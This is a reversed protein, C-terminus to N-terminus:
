APAAALATAPARRRVFRREVLHYSLVAAALSLGIGIGKVYLAATGVGLWVFIPVHWLYLSYSTKGLYVVPRWAGRELAALLVTAACVAFVVVWGNYLGTPTWFLISVGVVLAPWAFAGPRWGARAAYAALCGAAISAASRAPSYPLVHGFTQAGASWAFAGAAVAIAQWSRRCLVLALPWLLYFQEEAALSWLHVLPNAVLGPRNADLALNTTFTLPWLLQAVPITFAAVALLALLAPGLRRARRRYFAGISIRGSEDREELLLTTILFGSLVFFLDVGLGGDKPWGFAHASVVLAIAIARVGDLAPRYGLRETTV